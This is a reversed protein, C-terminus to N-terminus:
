QIGKLAARVREREVACKPHHESVTPYKTIPHSCTCPGSAPIVTM